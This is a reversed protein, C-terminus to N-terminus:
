AGAGGLFEGETEAGEVEVDMADGDGAADVAVDDDDEDMAVEDEDADRESGRHSQTQAEASDMERGDEDEEEESSSSQRNFLFISDEDSESDEASAASASAAPRAAQPQGASSDPAVPAAPAMSMDAASMDAAPRRAARQDITKPNKCASGALCSCWPGCSRAPDDPGNRKCVCSSSCIGKRARTTCGCGPVADEFVGTDWQVQKQTVDEGGITKTIDKWGVVGEGNAVSSPTFDLVHAGHEDASDGHVVSPRLCSRWYEIAWQARAAHCQAATWTPLFHKEEAQISTSVQRVVEYAGEATKDAFLAELSPGNAAVVGGPVFELFNPARAGGKNKDYYLSCLLRRYVLPDFHLASDRVAIIEGIKNGSHKNGMYHKLISTHSFGCIGSTFDSGALLFLYTFEAVSVGLQQLISGVKGIRIFEKASERHVFVQGHYCGFAGSDDYLQMVAAIWM